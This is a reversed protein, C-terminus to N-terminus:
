SFKDYRINKPNHKLELLLMRLTADVMPPPGAIYVVTDAPSSGLARKAVDHIFGSDFELDAHRERFEPSAEEHSLGIMVRVRDRFGRVHGALEDFYFADRPTRVGFFVRADKERFHGSESGRSLMSMMGAIGSGGAICVIHSATEPDFTARGLPGFMRVGLGNLPHSFFWETLAGGPVRKILFKLESCDAGFNVMSYSRAGAVADVEFLVFQGADFSLPREVSVDLELVDEVLRKSRVITGRYYDPLIRPPADFGRLLSLKLPARALSQCTLVENKEARTYKRGPAGEWVYETSGELVTAKCTGCTGSACEYPFGLGQRLAAYLIHEDRGCEFHCTVDKATM